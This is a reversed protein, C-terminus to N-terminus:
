TFGLVCVCVPTSSHPSLTKLSTILDPPPKNARGTINSSAPVYWRHLLFGTRVLCQIQQYKSRLSGLMCFQSFSSYGTWPIKNYCGSHLLVYMFTWCNNRVILPVSWLLGFILWRWNLESGQSDLVHAEATALACNKFWGWCAMAVCFLEVAKRQSLPVQKGKRLWIKLQFVSFIDVREECWLILLIFCFIYYM